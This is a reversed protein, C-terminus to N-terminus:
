LKSIDDIIQRICANKDETSYRKQIGYRKLKEPSFDKADALYRRCVETYRPDDQTAERKIARELRVRDEVELYIPFVKDKGFYEKIDQYVDLTGVMFYNAKMLDIQGDDVTFYNWKGLVTHYEREEIVKNQLRFQDLAVEDVFFYDVGNREEERIPRTTYRIIKKGALEKKQLICNLITDKGVASKGIIVFIHHM